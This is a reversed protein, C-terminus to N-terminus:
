IKKSSAGYAYEYMTNQNHLKHKNLIEQIHSIKMGPVFNKPYILGPIEKKEDKSYGAMALYMIDNDSVKKIPLNPALLYYSFYGNEELSIVEVISVSGDSSTKKLERGHVHSLEEENLLGRELRFVFDKSEYYGFGLSGLKAFLFQLKKEIISANDSSKVYDNINLTGNKISQIIQKFEELDKHQENNYNILKDIEKIKDLVESNYVPNNYHKEDNQQIRSLGFYETDDNNHIRALDNYSGYTADAVWKHRDVYFEVFKHGQDIIESPIDFKSLLQSYLQAWMVCNIETEKFKDVNVKKHMMNYMETFGTNNFKTSFSVTKALEIYLLRAIELKSLHNIDININNMIREYITM